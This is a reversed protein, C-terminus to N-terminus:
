GYTVMNAYHAPATVSEPKGIDLFKISITEVDSPQTRGTCTVALQRIVGSADVWVDLASVPNYGTNLTLVATSLGKVNTARLHQLRVGNIVQWGLSEFGASPALSALLKRPDPMTQGSGHESVSHYWQLPQGPPPDGYTYLQGDVVRSIFPKAGPQRSVSNYNDGSFTLDLTGSGDPTGGILDSYSLFAHGANAMAVQSNHVDREVTAAALLVPRARKAAHIVGSVPTHRGPNSAVLTAVAAATVALAVAVAAATMRVTSHRRQLPVAADATPGGPRQRSSSILDTLEAVTVAPARDEILSRIQDGFGAKM